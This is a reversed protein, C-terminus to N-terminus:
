RGDKDELQLQEPEPLAHEMGLARAAERRENESIPRYLLAMAELLRRLGNQRKTDSM